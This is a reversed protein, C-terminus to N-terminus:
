RETLERIDHDFERVTVAHQEGRRLHDAVEDGRRVDEVLGHDRGDPARPGAPAPGDLAPVQAHTELEAGAGRESSQQVQDRPRERTCRPETHDAVRDGTDNETTRM